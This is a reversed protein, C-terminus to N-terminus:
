NYRDSSSLQDPQNIKEFSEKLHTKIEKKAQALPIDRAAAIEAALLRLGQKYLEKGKQTLGDESQKRWGADRIIKAIEQIDGTHSQSRMVKHRTRYNDPLEEPESALIAWVTDLEETSAAARIGVEDVEDVPIMLNTTTQKLLRIKYYKRLTGATELETFGTIRGAGRLPHVVADGIKFKTKQENM